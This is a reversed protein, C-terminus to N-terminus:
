RKSAELNATHAACLCRKAELKCPAPPRMHQRNQVNQYIDSSVFNILMPYGNANEDTKRVAEM